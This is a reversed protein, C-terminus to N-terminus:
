SIDLSTFCSLTVFLRSRMYKLRIPLQKASYNLALSIALIYPFTLILQTERFAAGIAGLKRSEESM